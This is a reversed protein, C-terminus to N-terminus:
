IQVVLVFELVFKLSSIVNSGIFAIWPVLCPEFFLAKRILFCFTCSSVFLFTFIYFKLITVLMGATVLVPFTYRYCFLNTLQFSNMIILFDIIGHILNVTRLLFTLLRYNYINRIGIM